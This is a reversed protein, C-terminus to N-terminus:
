RGGGIELTVAEEVMHIICWLGRLPIGSAFTRNKSPNGGEVATGGGAGGWPMWASAENELALKPPSSVQSAAM